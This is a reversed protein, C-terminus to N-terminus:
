RLFTPSSDCPALYHSALYAGSFPAHTVRTADHDPTAMEVANRHLYLVGEKEFGKLLRSVVVRSSHLDNAIDQHHELIEYMLAPEFVGAFSSNVDNHWPSSTTMPHHKTRGLESVLPCLFLSLSVRAETGLTPSSGVRGLPCM